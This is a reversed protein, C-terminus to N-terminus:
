SCTLYIFDSIYLCIMGTQATEEGRIYRCQPLGWWIHWRSQEGFKETIMIIIWEDIHKNCMVNKLDCLVNKCKGKKEKAHYLKKDSSPPASIHGISAISEIHYNDSHIYM